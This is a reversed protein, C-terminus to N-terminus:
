FKVTSVVCVSFFSLFVWVFFSFLWVFNQCGRFNHCKVKPQQLNPKYQIPLLESFGFYTLFEELAFIVM